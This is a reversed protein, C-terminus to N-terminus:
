VEITITSLGSECPSYHGTPDTRSNEMSFPPYLTFYYKTALPSFRPFTRGRAAVVSIVSYRCFVFARNTQRTM